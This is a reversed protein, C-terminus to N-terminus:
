ASSARVRRGSHVFWPAGRDFSFIHVVNVISGYGAETMAGHVPEGHELHRPPQSRRGVAMRQRLDAIPAGPVARRRQQGPLRGARVGRLGRRAPRRRCDPDRINTVVPLCRAGLDRAATATDELTADTRGAVVVDAGYRAFALATTRGIGTGGGTVLAVRGTFLGPAFTDLPGPSTM